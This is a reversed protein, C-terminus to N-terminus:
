ELSTAYPENSVRSDSGVKVPMIEDNAILKIKIGKPNLAM